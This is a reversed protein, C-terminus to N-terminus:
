SCRHNAMYEALWEHWAAEIDRIAQLQADEGPSPDVLAVVRLDAGELHPDACYHDRIVVVWDEALAALAREIDSANAIHAQRLAASLETVFLAKRERKRLLELVHKRTESDRQAVDTIGENM